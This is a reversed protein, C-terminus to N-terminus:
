SIYRRSCASVARYDRVIRAGAENNARVLARAKDTGDYFQDRAGNIPSLMATAIGFKEMAALAIEPSWAKRGCTSISM